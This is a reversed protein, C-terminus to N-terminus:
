AFLTYSNVWTRSGNKVSYVYMRFDTGEPLNHGTWPSCYGATHGQTTASTDFGVMEAYVGMGDPNTDCVRFSDGKSYCGSPDQNWDVYGRLGNVDRIELRDYCSAVRPAPTAHAAGGGLAITGGALAATMTVAAAARRSRTFTNM